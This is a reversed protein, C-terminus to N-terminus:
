VSNTYKTTRSEDKKMISSDVTVWVASIVRQWMRNEFHGQNHGLANGTVHDVMAKINKLGEKEM